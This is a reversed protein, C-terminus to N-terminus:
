KFRSADWNIESRHTTLAKALGGATTIVSAVGLNDLDSRSVRYWEDPTRIPLTKELYALALKTTEPDTRLRAPIKTFKWPLWEHEPYVTSLMKYPSFGYCQTLLGVCGLRKLTPRDVFYWPTLDGDKVGIQAGVSDM